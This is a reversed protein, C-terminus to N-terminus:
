LPQHPDSAPVFDIALPSLAAGSSATLIAGGRLRRHTTLRSRSTRLNWETRSHASIQTCAGDPYPL